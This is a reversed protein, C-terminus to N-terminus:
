PSYPHHSILPSVARISSRYTSARYEFGAWQHQVAQEDQVANMGRCM